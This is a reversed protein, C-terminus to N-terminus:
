TSTSTHTTLIRIVVHHTRQIALPQMPSTHKPAWTLDPACVAAIGFDGECLSGWAGAHFVELIGSESDPTAGETTGSLRFAGETGASLSQM